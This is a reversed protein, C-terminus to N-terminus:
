WWEKWVVYEEIEDKLGPGRHVYISDFSSGNNQFNKDCGM